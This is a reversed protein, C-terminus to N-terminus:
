ADFPWYSLHERTDPLSVRRKMTSAASSTTACPLQLTHTQASARKSSRSARNLDAIPLDNEAIDTQPRTDRDIMRQAFDPLLGILRLWHLMPGHEVHNLVIVASRISLEPVSNISSYQAM